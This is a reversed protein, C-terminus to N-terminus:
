KEPDSSPLDPCPFGLTKCAERLRSDFATYFARDDAAYGRVSNKGDGGGGPCSEVTGGSIYPTQYFTRLVYLSLTRVQSDDLDKMGKGCRNLFCHWNWIYKEYTRLDPIELWKRIKVKSRDSKACEHVQLFYHFGEDEYYRGLPFLRCIGPRFPHVSCRGNEDLFGCAGSEGDMKLNPLILGDVVNLSIYKEMLGNFDLGTGSSLRFLDMPDLVVSDGMGCCCASCGECGRCDARVMDGSSYLRGDSIENLDINRKM